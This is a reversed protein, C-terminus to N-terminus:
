CYKADDKQRCRFREVLQRCVFSDLKCMQIHEDHPFCHAEVQTEVYPSDRYYHPHYVLRHVCHLGM